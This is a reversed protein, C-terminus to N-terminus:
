LDVIDGTAGYTRRQPEPTYHYRARLPARQLHQPSGPVSSSESLRRPPPQPPTPSVYRRSLSPSVCSDQNGLSRRTPDLFGRRLLRPSSSEAQQGRSLRPPPSPPVTLPDYRTQQFYPQPNEVFFRDTNNPQPNLRFLAPSTPAPSHHAPPYTQPMPAPSRRQLQLNFYSAFRKQGGSDEVPNHESEQRVLPSTPRGSTISGPMAMLRTRKINCKTDVNINATSLQSLGRLLHPHYRSRCDAKWLHSRLPSPVVAPPTNTSANVTNVPLNVESLRMAVAFWSAVDVQTSEYKRIFPHELLKRYKPRQRYNKTLPFHGTALEVLTIGLSWVDARIDYDPKTPDPPDIREPAMYAACGASRTKAKSDVLRGSIGFDCLKVNGREDLLINSPKVDRHIVGHSEKLYHLAKVTSVTVVGLIDEPIPARLRRLLKDFCTAMLEMCIWVDANTIFCGLCQVIFPCDHSKLVVDIDMIIRKNEESNGSRRMQKVAIVTDSPRHLMKVVHGCTGNGLEGLHELDKVETQYKTGNINIIGNMKMIEKMKNDIESSEQHRNPAPFLPLALEKRSRTPTGEHRPPLPSGGDMLQRPRNMQTPRRPMFVSNLDSPLTDRQRAENEARLRAELGSIKRDIASGELASSM